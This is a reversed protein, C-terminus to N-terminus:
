IYPSLLAAATFFMIDDRDREDDDDGDDDDEEDHNAICTNERNTSNMSCPLALPQGIMSTCCWADTSAKNQWRM